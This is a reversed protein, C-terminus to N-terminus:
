KTKQGIIIMADTKRLVLEILFYLLLLPSFIIILLISLLAYFSAKSLSMSLRRHSVISYFVDKPLLLNLFSQLLGSVTYEPNFYNINVLKINSKELMIKISKPTFQIRHLPYSFHFWKDKTLMANFSNANPVAILVKGGKKLYGTVKLLISLPQDIHELSHWFMILDYSNKGGLIKNYVPLNNEKALKVAGKSPEFGKINVKRQLLKEVLVGNGCGYDLIASKKTDVLDIIKNTKNDILKNLIPRLIQSILSPTKNQQFYQKSYIPHAKEKLFYGSCNKCQYYHPLFSKLFNKKDQNKCIPCM